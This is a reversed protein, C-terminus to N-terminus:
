GVFLVKERQVEVGLILQYALHQDRNSAEACGDDMRTFHKSRGYAVARRSKDEDVIVWGTIRRGASFVSIAGLSEDMGSLDQADPYQVM